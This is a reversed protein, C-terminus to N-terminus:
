FLDGIKETPRGLVAKKGKVVIPREILKPNQTMAEILDDEGLSTDSLNLDKYAQERTRLLERPGLGLKKLLAKLDKATLPTDLYRIIEPEVGADQLFALGARSKSCRPNHYIKVSDAM